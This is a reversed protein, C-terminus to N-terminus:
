FLKGWGKLSLQRKIKGGKKLGFFFKLKHQRIILHKSFFVIQEKPLFFNPFFFM